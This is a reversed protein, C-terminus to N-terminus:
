LRHFLVSNASSGLGVVSPVDFGWSVVPVVSLVSTVVSFTFRVVVSVFVGADVDTVM